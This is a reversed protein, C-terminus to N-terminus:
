LNTTEMFSWRAVQMPLQYNEVDTEPTTAFIKTSFSKNNNEGTDSFSDYQDPTMCALTHHKSFNVDKNGVNVIFLVVKNLAKEPFVCVTPIMYLSHSEICM